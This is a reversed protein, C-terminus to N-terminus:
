NNIRERVIRCDAAFAPFASQIEELAAQADSQSRYDGVRVRWYPSEFSIYVHTGGLHQQIVRRRYEANAKATTVNNDSYVQVRYGVRRTAQRTSAAPEAANAEDTAAPAIRAGLAEPQRITVTSNERSNIAEVINEVGTSDSEETINQAAASSVGICLFLLAAIAPHKCM